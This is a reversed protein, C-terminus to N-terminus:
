RLEESLYARSSKQTPGTLRLVRHKCMAELKCTYAARLCWQDWQVQSFGRSKLEGRKANWLTAQCVSFSQLHVVVFSLVHKVANSNVATYFYCARQFCILNQFYCTSCNALQRQNQQSTQEECM